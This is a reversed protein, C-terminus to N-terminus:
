TSCLIYTLIHVELVPMTGKLGARRMTAAMGFGLAPLLVWSVQGQFQSWRKSCQTHGEAGGRRAAAQV